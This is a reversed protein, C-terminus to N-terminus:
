RLVSYLRLLAPAFDCGVCWNQHCCISTNAEQASKARAKQQGFRCSPGTVSRSVIYQITNRTVETGLNAIQMFLSFSFIFRLRIFKCTGRATIIRQAIRAEKEGSKNSQIKQKASRAGFNAKRVHCMIYVIRAHVLRALVRACEAIIIEEKEASEINKPQQENWNPNYKDPRRRCEFRKNYDVAALWGCINEIHLRERKRNVGERTGAEGGGARMERRGKWNEIQRREICTEIPSGAAREGASRLSSRFSFM